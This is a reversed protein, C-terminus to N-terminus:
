VLDIENVRRAGILESIATRKVHALTYVHFSWRVMFALVITM